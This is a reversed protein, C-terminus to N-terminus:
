SVPDCMELTFIRVPSSLRFQQQARSSNTDLPDPRGLHGRKSIIQYLAEPGPQNINSRLVLKSFPRNRERLIQTDAFAFVPCRVLM